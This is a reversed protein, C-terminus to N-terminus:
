KDRGQGETVDERHRRANIGSNFGEMKLGTVTPPLLLPLRLAPKMKPPKHLLLHLLLILFPASESTAPGPARHHYHLHLIPSKLHPDPYRFPFSSLFPPSLFHLPFSILAPDRRPCTGPQAQNQGKMKKEKTIIITQNLNSEMQGLEEKKLM